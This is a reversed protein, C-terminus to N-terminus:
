KGLRVFRYKFCARVYTLPDRWLSVKKGERFTRSSYNVPVELPTYGKRILKAVLEWDLDFHDSELELGHLCDRRFIKFMTFPDRLRQRYVVNFLLRFAVHGFGMLLHVAAHESFRRMKLSGHRRDHRAGLVFAARGAIVPALLQDYDNVDYELDADQILVVDGDAVRLASRIAHGKGYPKPEHIVRVRPRSAVEDVAEASGDTSGSEVIVIDIEAGPVTKGHVQDFVIRFTPRENYVPMIVTVRVPRSAPPTLPSRRATVDIGSAVVKVERRRLPGPVWRRLGSTLPSFIPVPFRAFHEMVYDV